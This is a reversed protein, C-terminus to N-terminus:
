STIQLLIKTKTIYRCYGKPTWHDVDLFSPSARTERTPNDGVKKHTGFNSILNPLPSLNEFKDNECSKKLDHCFYPTEFVCVVVPM